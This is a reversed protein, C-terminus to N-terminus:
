MRKLSSFYASVLHTRERVDHEAEAGISVKPDDPDSVDRFFIVSPIEASCRPAGFNEDDKWAYCTNSTGFDVAVVGEYPAPAGTVEDLFIKLAIAEGSALELAVEETARAAPFEPHQTDLRVDLEAEAGAALALPAGASLPVFDGNEGRRGVDVWYPARVRAVAVEIPSDGSNVIRSVTARVGSGREIRRFHIPTAVLMGM